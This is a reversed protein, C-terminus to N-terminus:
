NKRGSAIVAAIVSKAGSEKLVKSCENITNGTTFVDDVLLISKGQIHKPYNAKFAGKINYFREKGSLLSQSQTNLVRSLINSNKSIKLEKSLVKCILEAQNYGRLNEKSKHLPVGIVIDFGVYNTMKKLKAALLKGFARYYSSKEFFKYRILAQKIIGSYECIYIVGDCYEEIASNLISQTIGHKSFPINKMCQPCIDFDDKTVMLIGCFICKSPYILRTIEKLM